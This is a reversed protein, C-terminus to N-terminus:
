QVKNQWYTMEYHGPKLIQEIPFQAQKFTHEEPGSIYFKNRKKCNECEFTVTATEELLDLEHEEIQSQALQGAFVTFVISFCLIKLSKM